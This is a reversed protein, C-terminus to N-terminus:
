WQGVKFVEGGIEVEELPSYKSWTAATPHKLVKPM